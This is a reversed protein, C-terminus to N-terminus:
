FTENAWGSRAFRRDCPQWRQFRRDPTYNNFNFTFSGILLPGISVLLLPMTIYRFAQFRNAGDVQAAEYLDSPIAAM